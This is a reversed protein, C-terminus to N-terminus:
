DRMFDAPDQEDSIVHNHNVYQYWGTVLYKDGSLPPNGRHLHTFNAPWIVLAGRKPKFRVGQHLFELEGGEEVDNLFLGWALIRKTAMTDLESHWVHYGEGPGTKQMKGEIALPRGFGPYRANYRELINNNLYKLFEDFDSNLHRVSDEYRVVNLGCSLDMKVSPHAGEADQRTQIIPPTVRSVHEWFEFFQELNEEKFWGKYHGIFDNFEVTPERQM